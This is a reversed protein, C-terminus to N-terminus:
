GSSTTCACMCPPDAQVSIDLLRVLLRHLRTNGPLDQRPPECVPLVVSWGMVAMVNEMATTIQIGKGSQYVVQEQTAKAEPGGIVVTTTAPRIPGPAWTKPAQQWRPAPTGMRPRLVADHQQLWTRVTDVTPGRPMRAQLETANRLAGEPTYFDGLHHYGLALAATFVARPVPCPGHCWVSHRVDYGGRPPAAPAPTAPRAGQQPPPPPTPPLTIIPPTGQCQRPLWMPLGVLDVALRLGRLLHPCHYYHLWQSPAIM